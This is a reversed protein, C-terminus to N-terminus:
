FKHKKAKQSTGSIHQLLPSAWNAPEDKKTLIQKLRAVTIGEREAVTKQFARNGKAKEADVERQLRARRVDPPEEYGKGNKPADTLRRVLGVDVAIGKDDATLLNAVDVEHEDVTLRMRGDLRITLKSQFKRGKFTGIDWFSTPEAVYRPELVNLRAALWSALGQGSARWMELHRRPIPVSSIDSRRDCAIFYHTGGRKREVSEVAAICSEECGPCVIQAPPSSRSLLAESRLAAVLAPPWLDLEAASLEVPQGGNISL